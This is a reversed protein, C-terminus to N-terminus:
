ISFLRISAKSFILCYIIIFISFVKISAKAWTISSSKTLHFFGMENKPMQLSFKTYYICHLHVLYYAIFVSETKKRKSHPSHLLPHIGGMFWYIGTNHLLLVPPLPAPPWEERWGERGGAFSFLDGPCALQLLFFLM